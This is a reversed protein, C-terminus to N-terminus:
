LGGPERRRAGPLGCRKGDTRGGADAGAPCPLVPSRKGPALEGEPPARPHIRAPGVLDALENITVERGSGLDITRGVAEDRTGVIQCIRHLRILDFVTRVNRTVNCLKLDGGSESLRKLCSLIAGCGRSDVFQVRSLDLVVKRADQFVPAMQRKFDEANSADLQDINLTVVAVDGVKEVTPQM